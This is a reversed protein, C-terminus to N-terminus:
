SSNYFGIVTHCQKCVTLVCLAYIRYGSAHVQSSNFVVDITLRFHRVRASDKLINNLTGPVLLRYYIFPVIKLFGSPKRSVLVMVVEAPAGAGNQHQHTFASGSVVGSTAFCALLVM